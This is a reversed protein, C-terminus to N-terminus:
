APCDRVTKGGKRINDKAWLPQLNSYHFCKKQEEHKSLDFSVCPKVHDIHWGNNGYNDWSMGAAFKSELYQRLFEITCGVLSLVSTKKYSKKIARQFRSRLIKPLRIEPRHKNAHWHKLKWVKQYLAYKEPSQARLRNAKNRNYARSSKLDSHYAEKQRTNIEDKNAAYYRKLNKLRNPNDKQYLSFCGKCRSSLHGRTVYFETENKLNECYKCRKMIIFVRIQLLLSHLVTFIKNVKM